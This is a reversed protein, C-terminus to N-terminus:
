LVIQFHMFVKGCDALCQRPLIVLQGVLQDPFYLAPEGLGIATRACKEDVKGM